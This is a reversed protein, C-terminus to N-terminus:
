FEYKPPTIGKVRLYMEASARHNTCHDLMNFLLDIGTASGGVGTQAFVPFAAVATLLFTLCLKRM